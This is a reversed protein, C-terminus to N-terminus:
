HWLVVFYGEVTCSGLGLQEHFTLPVSEQSGLPLDPRQLTAHSFWFMEYLTDAFFTFSVLLCTQLHWQCPNFSGPTPLHWRLSQRLLAPFPQYPPLVTRM